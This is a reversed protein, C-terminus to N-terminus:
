RRPNAVSITAPRPRHATWAPGTGMRHHEPLDRSYSGQRAGVRAPVYDGTGAAQPGVEKDRSLFLNKALQQTITSAGRAAGGRSWNTLLASPLERLDIGRHGYFGADEALLLAACSCDASRGAPRHLRPIFALCRHATAPRTRRRLPFCLRRATALDGSADPTASQLRDEPEGHSRCARGSKRAVIGSRDHGIWLIVAAAPRWEWAKPVSLGAAGLLRGFERGFASHSISQRIAYRHRAAHDFGVPGRRGVDRPDRPYRDHGRCAALRRRIRLTVDTADGLQPEDGDNDALAASVRVARASTSTSVSRM